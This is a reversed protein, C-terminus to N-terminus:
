DRKLIVFSPVIQNKRGYLKEQMRKIGSCGDLTVPFPIEELAAPLAEGTGSGM